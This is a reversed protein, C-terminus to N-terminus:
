AEGKEAAPSVTAAWANVAATPAFFVQVFTNYDTAVGVRDRNLKM